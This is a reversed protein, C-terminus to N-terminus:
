LTRALRFGLDSVRITPEIRVRSAVRANGPNDYWSGGRVVRLGCDGSEWARGDRPAGKYSDNWCDQLWEWVNGIMDYLGFANPEFSGVPSTQEGSWRSGSDHFNARNEGPDDGWPYRTTTGARAAYEWEAESPLRYPKGTKESLWKVFAVSDNWSVGVM